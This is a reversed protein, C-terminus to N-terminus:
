YYGTVRFGVRMVMIMVIVKIIIIILIIIKSNNISM